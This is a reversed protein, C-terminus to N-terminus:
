WTLGEGLHEWFAGSSLEEPLWQCWALQAAWSRRDGTWPAERVSRTTVARAMSGEDAAVAPIGRLVADVASNSNYTVVLDVGRLAEALPVSGPVHVCGRPPRETTRVPHHRFAVDTWGLQHLELAQAQYWSDVDVGAISADGPVQGMILARRRDVGVAPRRWARFEALHYQLWREDDVTRPAAGRRGVDPLRFDARGNLGGFGASTWRMRDGVYGRELVLWRRGSRGAVARQGKTGWTVVLDCKPMLGGEAADALFGHQRLGAAALALLDGAGRLHIRATLRRAV